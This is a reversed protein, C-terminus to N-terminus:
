SSIKVTVQSAQFFNVASSSRICLRQELSQAMIHFSELIPIIGYPLVRRIGTCYKWNIAAVIVFYLCGWMSLRYGWQKMSLWVWAMLQNVSTWWTVIVIFPSITKGALWQLAKILQATQLSKDLPLYITVDGLTVRISDFACLVKVWLGPSNATNVVTTIFTIPM